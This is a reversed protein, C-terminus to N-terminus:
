SIGRADVHWLLNSHLVARCSRVRVAYRKDLQVLLPVARHGSFCQVMAASDMNMLKRAADYGLVDSM